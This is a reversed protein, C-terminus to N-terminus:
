ECSQQAASIVASFDWPNKPASDGQLAKPLGKPFMFSARSWFWRATGPSCAKVPRSFTVVVPVDHVTGQACDPQCDDLKYTGTGVAESATWSSWAMGSLFATSDGSLACDSACAPKYLPTATLSQGPALYVAAPASSAPTPRLSAPASPSSAATAPSVTGASASTTTIVAPGGPNATSSSSSSCATVALVVLGLAAGPNRTSGM